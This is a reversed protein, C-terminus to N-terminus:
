YCSFMQLQLEVVSSTYNFRNLLPYCAIAFTYQLAKSLQFAEFIKKLYLLRKKKVHSCSYISEESSGKNPNLKLANIIVNTRRNSVSQFFYSGDNLAWSLSACLRTKRKDRHLALPLPISGKLKVVYSFYLVWHLTQKFPFMEWFQLWFRTVISFHM